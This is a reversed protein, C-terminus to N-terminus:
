EQTSNWHIGARHLRYRLAPVDIDLEQALIRLSKGDLLGKVAEYIKKPLKEIAKRLDEQLEKEEYAEEPLPERDPLNQLYTDDVDTEIRNVLKEHRYQDIALNKATTYLYAVFKERAIPMTPRHIRYYLRVFAEQAIDDLKERSVGLSLLYRRLPEWHEDYLQTFLDNENM